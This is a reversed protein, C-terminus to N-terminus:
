RMGSSRHAHSDPSVLREGCRLVHAPAGLELAHVILALANTRAEHRHHDERRVPGDAPQTDGRRPFQPASDHPIAGLAEYPFDETAGADGGAEVNDDDGPRFHEIRLVPDNFRFESVDQPTGTARGGLTPGLTDARGRSWPAARRHRL